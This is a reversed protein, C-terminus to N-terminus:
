NLQVRGTYSDVIGDDNYTGVLNGGGSIGAYAGTGAYIHWGGNDTPAGFVTSADYTINFTGSNDDCTLVKYGHFSGARSQGSGGFLEFFNSATGSPCLVGGDTTFTEVDGANIITITVTVNAAGGAMATGMVSLALVSAAAIGTAIRRVM